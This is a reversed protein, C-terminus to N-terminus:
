ITTFTGLLKFNIVDSMNGSFLFIVFRQQEAQAEAKTQKKKRTVTETNLRMMNWKAEEDQASSAASGGPGTLWEDHADEGSM